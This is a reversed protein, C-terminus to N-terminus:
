KPSFNAFCSTSFSDPNVIDIVATVTSTIGGVVGVAIIICLLTTEWLQLERKTWNSEHKAHVLKMYMLPPLVFSCMTVTSGGILNLIKGFDPVALGVVVEFALISSRLLCRVLGFKNEVGLLEEFMQSIPNFTIIYTGLLNLVEMVLAAKIIGKSIDVTLLINDGVDVGKVAYGAIAVPLYLSLLVAFSVVVAKGFLSRDRMDNQITPFVSAGGFSFLIAGFGLAFSSVTPNQYVPDFKPDAEVLIEVFIVICAIATAVVAIVSAQWFDKPTGLWTFPLVVGATVLVWECVSLDSVMQNMFSAILILYVITGGLLTILVCALALRRGHHGLAKDAIEMYPTRCADRYEEPWREELVMWSAALRTGSFGVIVCFMVMMLVGIWGCNAVAKPLSLFGAGAMQAVLFFATTGFGLGIKSIGGEVTEQISMEQVIGSVTSVSSSRSGKTSM